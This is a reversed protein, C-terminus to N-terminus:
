SQCKKCRKKSSDVLPNRQAAVRSVNDAVSFLASSFAELSIGARGLEPPLGRTDEGYEWSATEEAEREGATPVLTAYMAAFLRIYGQRSLVKAKYLSNNSCM